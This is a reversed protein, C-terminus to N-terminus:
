TVVEAREVRLPQDAPGDVPVSCWRRWGLRAPQIMGLLMFFYYPVYIIRYESAPPPKMWFLLPTPMAMRLAGRSVGFGLKGRKYEPEVHLFGGKEKTVPFVSHAYQTSSLVAPPDKIAGFLLAGKYSGFGTLEQGNGGAAPEVRAVLDAHRLSRHWLWGATALVALSLVVGAVTISTGVWSSPQSMDVDLAM